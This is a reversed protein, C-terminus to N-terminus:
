KYFSSTSSSASSSSGSSSALSSPTDIGRFRPRLGLCVAEPLVVGRPLGPRLGLTGVRLILNLLRLRVLLTLTLQVQVEIAM